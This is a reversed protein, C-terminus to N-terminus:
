SDNFLSSAGSRYSFIMGLTCRVESHHIVGRSLTSGHFRSSRDQIHNHTMMLSTVTNLDHDFRQKSVSCNRPSADHVSDVFVHGFLKFFNKDHANLVPVPFGTAFALGRDFDFEVNDKSTLGLFTLWTQKTAFHHYLEDIISYSNVVQCFLELCLEHTSRM